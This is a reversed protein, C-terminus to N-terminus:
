LNSLDFDSFYKKFDNDHGISMASGHENLRFKITGNSVFFSHIKGFSKLKKCINWLGRYYGCLSENIYIRKAGNDKTFDKNKLLKKNQLTRQCDKRSKFKVIVREKKKLRHCAQLCESSIDVNIENLINIVVNELNDDVIHHPIGVIEICERRSYQENMACKREVYEVQSYLKSNVNKAIALEAELKCFREELSNMKDFINKQLKMTYDVLEDKSLKCLTSKSLLSMSDM